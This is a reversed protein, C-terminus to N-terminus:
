SGKRRKHKNQVKFKKKRVWGKISMQGVRSLALAM